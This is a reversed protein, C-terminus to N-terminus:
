TEAHAGWHSLALILKILHLFSLSFRPAGYLYWSCILESVHFAYPTRQLLSVMNTIVKGVAM